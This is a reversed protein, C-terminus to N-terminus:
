WGGPGMMGPGMMWGRGGRRTALGPLIESAQGQQYPTLHTLLADAAAKKQEYNQKMLVVMKSMADFREDPTMPRNATPQWLSRMGAVRGQEAATVAAVYTNWADTEDATIKLDDKLTALQDAISVKPGGWRGDPGGPRGMMGTGIGGMMGPGMGYYGGMMGPGTSQDVQGASEPPAANPTQALAVTAIGAVGLLAIGLGGLRHSTKNM